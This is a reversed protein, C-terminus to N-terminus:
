RILLALTSFIHWSTWNLIYACNKVNWVISPQLNFHSAGPRWMAGSMNIGSKGPEMIRSAKHRLVSVRSRFARERHQQGMPRQRLRPGSQSCNNSCAIAHSSKAPAAVVYQTSNVTLFEAEASIHWSFSKWVRAVREGCTAKGM